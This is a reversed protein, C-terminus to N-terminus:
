TVHIHVDSHHVVLVGGDGLLGRKLVREVEKCGRENSDSRRAYGRAHGNITASTFISGLSYREVDPFRLPCPTFYSM